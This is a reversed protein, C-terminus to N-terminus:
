LRYEWDEGKSEPTQAELFGPGLGMREWFGPTRPGETSEDM